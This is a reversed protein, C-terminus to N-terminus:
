RYDRFGYKTFEEWSLKYEDLIESERYAEEVEYGYGEVFIKMRELTWKGEEFDQVLEDEKKITFQDKRIDDLLMDCIGELTNHASYKGFQNDWIFYYKDKM